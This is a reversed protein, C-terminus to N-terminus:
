KKDQSVVTLFSVKSRGLLGTQLVYMNLLGAPIEVAGLLFTNLFIDGSLSGSNLSLAFYILSTSFRHM